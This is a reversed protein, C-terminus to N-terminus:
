RCHYPRERGTSRAVRPQRMGAALFPMLKLTRQEECRANKESPLIVVM